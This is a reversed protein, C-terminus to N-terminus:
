FERLRQAFVGPIPPHAQPQTLSTPSIVHREPTFHLTKPPNLSHNLPSKTKPLTEPPRQPFHGEGIRKGSPTQPLKVVVGVM